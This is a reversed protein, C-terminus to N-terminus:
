GEMPAAGDPALNVNDLNAPQVSASLAQPNSPNAGKPAASVGEAEPSPMMAAQQQAMEMQQQAQIAQIEGLRQQFVQLPDKFDPSKMRDTLIKLHIDLNDFPLVPPIEMPDMEGRSVATLVSNVWRARKVDANLQTTLPTAGFKELFEQNGVPNQIPDLPGFLNGKALEQYMQQEVAKSRPLSSGAEIRVNVNDALDAGLFDKIEVDLNDRNLAKLQSVLDPRIEKYFKNINRLKKTQGSEIFKEWSQIQPNFKSFSQELMMQMQGVTNVGEPKIGSLVENIGTNRNFADIAMELEKYVGQSLDAGPLKTPAAGNPQPKWIINLGPKGSIYKERISGDPILWQPIAMTQRNLVILAIISNIRQQLEIVNEIMSLGHWRFFLEQYKCFSYPHWSDPYKADFYKSPGAFLTKKCARVILIGEPHNPLPHIYMEKVIASGQLSEADTNPGVNGIGTATKLRQFLTMANSLETDEEMTDVLGTYGEGEKGYAEQIWSKPKVNTELFWMRNQIDPILRFPDIIEVATDGIPGIIGGEPKPANNTPGASSDWYDKRIVTGCLMLILAAQIHLLQEQDLEWKADQIRESLKAANIDASDTSNPRVSANPKQRTYISVLTQVAPLIYNTVPRPVWDNFKTLPIPEYRNYQENYAIHQEGMFFRINREWIKALTSLYPASTSYCEDVMAGLEKVHEPNKLDFENVKKLDLSCGM